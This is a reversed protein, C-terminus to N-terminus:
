VPRNETGEGPTVFLMRTATSTRATHWTAKPVIAFSGPQRLPIVEERGDRDLVLNAAGAVLYVFEDGAPHIEWTPWDTDFEFCSVLQHGRFADFRADLEDFLMPTVDVPTASRDPALVVFTSALDFAKPLPM